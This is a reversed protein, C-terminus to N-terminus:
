CDCGGCDCGGCDCGDCNCDCGDSNCDCGDCNCDCCQNGSHDSNSYCCCFCWAFICCWDNCCPDYPRYRQPEPSIPQITMYPDQYHGYVGPQEAVGYMHVRAGSM